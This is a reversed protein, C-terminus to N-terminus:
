KKMTIRFQTPTGAFVETATLVLTTCDFSTIEANSVDSTGADLTMKGDSSISWTGNTNGNPTCAVGADLYVSTGDSNLIIKDDFQCSDLVTNTINFFIGGNSAEFKIPTYTGAINSVSKDCLTSASKEKSCSALFTTIIMPLVFIKKM